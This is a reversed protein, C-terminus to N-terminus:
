TAWHSASIPQRCEFRLELEARALNHSIFQSARKAYLTYRGRIKGLMFCEDILRSLSIMSSHQRPLVVLRM